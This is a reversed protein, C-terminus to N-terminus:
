SSVLSGDDIVDRVRKVMMKPLKSVPFARIDRVERKQIKQKARETFEQIAGETEPVVIGYMLVTNIHGGRGQETVTRIHRFSENPLWLGTEQGLEKHPSEVYKSGDIQSQDVGDRIQELIEDRHEDIMGGGPVGWRFINGYAQRIMAINEINSDTPIIDTGVTHTGNIAWIARRGVDAGITVARGVPLPLRDLTTEVGNILDEKRSTM